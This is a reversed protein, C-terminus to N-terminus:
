KRRRSKDKPAECREVFVFYVSTADIGGIHIIRDRRGLEIVQGSDKLRIQEVWVQRRRRM